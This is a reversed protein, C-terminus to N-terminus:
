FLKMDYVKQINKLADMYESYRAKHYNGDVVYVNREGSKRRELQCAVAGGLSHLHGCSKSPMYVGDAGPISTQYWSTM